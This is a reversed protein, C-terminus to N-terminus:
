GLDVAPRQGLQLVVARAPPFGYEEVSAKEWKMESLRRDRM